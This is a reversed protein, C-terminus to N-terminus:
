ILLLNANQCTQSCLFCLTHWTLSFFAETLCMQSSNTNASQSLRFRQLMFTQITESNRSSNCNRMQYIEKKPNLNSPLIQDVRLRAAIERQISEADNDERWHMSRWWVTEEYLVYHQWLKALFWLSVASLWTNLQSNSPHIAM